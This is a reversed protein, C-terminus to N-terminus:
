RFQAPSLPLRAGRLQPVLAPRVAEDPNLTRALAAVTSAEFLARVPVEVGLMSRLRSVLRMALLSHGGRAFFDEDVGVRDVGLVEAFVECLVQEELTRPGHYLGVQRVPAPLARRDLKGSPTLPLAELEVVLSPVMYVPLQAVLAQQLAALDLRAESSPVAYAVLEQGVPGDDRVVAAAQAVSAQSVLVSEVEGLEIRFGRLQVQDDARGMYELLGDPRWQALDGTRYMRSGPKGFPNAVLREATLAARHLYGRALGDGGLYLEGTVGVPLPQLAADLVYAQMNAIPQGIPIRVVGAAPRTELIYNTAYIASETMGYIDAIKARQFAAYWNRATHVPLAEGGNFVWQLHPLPDEEGMDHVAELFANMLPPVFQTVTVRYDRLRHYLLDPDQVADDPIIALTAGATLTWFFEWVSDTFSAPTKQAVVQQPGLAFTAQLWHFTNLVAQHSIMVGKPRGTSGSTYIVYAQHEPLVVELRESASPNDVSSLALTAETDPADLALVEAGHPLIHRLTETSLVVSPSADELMYALRAKPYSPDLPVYAGGTKLIAVLAVVLEASRELCVGVLREPGVGLQILHHALRNAKANLEGYSLATEGQIVAPAHPARAVQFEFQADLTQLEGVEAATDNWEVLIQRREAETLMPLQVIRHDPHSVIEELLILYHGIMRQITEVQFLDPDYKLVGFCKTTGQVMELNLDFGSEQQPLGFPVVSLGAWTISSTSEEEGPVTIFLPALEPKPQLFKFLVQVVPPASPNNPVDLEQVLLSFPYAQNRGGMAMTQWVQRLLDKVTPNESLDTCLPLLNIFNGMTSEFAPSPQSAVPTGVVFRDQQSYRHILVQFSTLLLVDLTTKAQEALANLAATLEQSLAFYESRGNFANLPPRHHDTPLELQLPVDSLQSQWYASLKEGQRQLIDRENSVYDIYTRSLVPLEPEHGECFAPYLLGVEELLHWWSEADMVLHHAGMLLVHQDHAQTFVHVRFLPGKAFDYPSRHTQIVETHLREEDWGTVDIHTLAVLQGDLIQQVPQGEHLYVITRLVAQRDYITQFTQRLAALNVESFIRIAIGTHYAISHPVQQQHLWLGLQGYSLPHIDTNPNMMALEM